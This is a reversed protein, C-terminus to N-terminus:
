SKSIARPGSNLLAEVTPGISSLSITADTAGIAVATGPMGWVASSHQDQAVTLSGASRMSKLGVAGDRGMGTLLIGVSSKGAERALSQFMTDVSPRHGSCAPGNSIKTHLGEDRTEVLLHQDGPAVYCRGARLLEGPQAIDVKYRSFRDLRKAFPAMFRQPMHQSILVSSNPVYLGELVERIAEPGGTSAGIAIVANLENSIPQIRSAALKCAAVAVESIKAAGKGASNRLRTQGASKVRSVIEDVYAEYDPGTGPHRKVMFDVAGLSLADLTVEAGASTLSSLMVVPMPRLRMLNKLFTLGDMRPMEVDLTLVHPQLTKILSRAEYPDLAHGVVEIEPDSNLIKSLFECMAKSDDVVLVRVAM